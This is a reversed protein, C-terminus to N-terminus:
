RDRGDHEEREQGRLRYCLITVGCGLGFALLGIFIYGAADSQAFVGAAGSAATKMHSAASAGQRAMLDPMTLAVGILLTLCAATLLGAMFFKHRTRRQRRIERTRKEIAEIRESTTRM